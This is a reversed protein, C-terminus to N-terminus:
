TIQTVTLKPRKGKRIQIVFQKGIANPKTVRITLKTGARLKKKVFEALKVNGSRTSTFRRTPCRKGKCAVTVRAGTPVRRLTLVRYRTYSRFAKFDSSLTANVIEKVPPPPNPNPNPNPKPDEDLNM